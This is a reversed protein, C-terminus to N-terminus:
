AENAERKAEEKARRIEEGVMRKSDERSVEGTEHQKSSLISTTPKNDYKISGSADM